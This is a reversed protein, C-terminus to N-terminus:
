GKFYVGVPTLTSRFGNSEPEYITECVGTYGINKMYDLCWDTDKTRGEESPPMLGSRILDSGRLWKSHVDVVNCCNTIDVMELGPAIQFVECCQDRNDSGVNFTALIDYRIVGNSIDPDRKALAYFGSTTIEVNPM